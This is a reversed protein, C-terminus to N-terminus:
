GFEVVAHPVPEVQEPELRTDAFRHLPEPEHESEPVEVLQAGYLQSAVLVDHLVEHAVVASQAVPKMQWPVAHTGPPEPPPQSPVFTILASPDRLSHAGNAQLEPRHRSVQMVFECHAAPAVQLVVVFCHTAAVAAGESSEPPQPQV